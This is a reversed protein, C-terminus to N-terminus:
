GNNEERNLTITATTIYGAGNWDTCSEIVVDNIDKKFEKALIKRIEREDLILQTVEVM